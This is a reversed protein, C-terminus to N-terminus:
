AEEKKGFGFWGPISKIGDMIATRNEYIAYAGAVAVGATAVQGVTVGAVIERDVLGAFGTKAPPAVEVTKTVTERIVEPEALGSVPLSVMDGPVQSPSQFKWDGKGKHYFALVDAAPGVVLLIGGDGAKAQVTCSEPMIGLFDLTKDLIMRQPVTHDLLWQKVVKGELDAKPAPAPAAATAASTAPAPTDAPAPAPAAVPSTTVPAAATTTNMAPTTATMTAATTTPATAPSAAPAPAIAAGLAAMGGVREWKDAPTHKRSKGM